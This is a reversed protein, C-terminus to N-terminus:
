TTAPCAVPRPRRGPTASTSWSPSSRTPRRSPRPTPSPRRSPATARTARSAKPRDRWDSPPTCLRRTLHEDIELSLGAAMLRAFGDADVGVVMFGQDYRVEWPETWAAVAAVQSRDSFWARVVTPCDDAAAMSHTAIAVLAVFVSTAVRM